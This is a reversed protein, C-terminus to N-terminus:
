DEILSLLELNKIFEKYNKNADFYRMVKQRASSRLRVDRHEELIRQFAKEIEGVPASAPLLVGCENSVLDSIGGVNPAIAPVGAAMAEMISVPVGESESSNVFCDVYNQEYYRCVDQNTLQGLFEWSMNPLGSLRSQAIANLQMKLPGDGIHVWRVKTKTNKIALLSLAEIIKDIRKVPVMFSVSVITFCEPKPFATIDSKVFVGLRSIACREHTANYTTQFYNKAEPSLLYVRDFENVFQRKLPMYGYKQREEYLDFRHARSVVKNVLGVRKAACAAYAYRSNWYSYLVDVGSNDKLWDLLNKEARIYSAINRLAIFVRPLSFLRRNHLDYIERYFLKSFLALLVYPIKAKRKSLSLDLTINEPIVRPQGITSSPLLYVQDFKTEGWFRIESEIFQEGPPFPFSSTIIAIKM